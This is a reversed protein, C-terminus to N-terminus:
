WRPVRSPLALDPCFRTRSRTSAWATGWISPRRCVLPTMAHAVCGAEVGPRLANAGSRLAATCPGAISEADSAQPMAVIAGLEVWHGSPGAIEVFVTVVDTTALQRALPLRAVFEGSSVYVLTLEAGEGRAVAEVGAAFPGSRHEESSGVNANSTRGTL